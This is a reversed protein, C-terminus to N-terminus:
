IMWNSSAPSNLFGFPYRKLNAARQIGRRRAGDPVRDRRSGALRSGRVEVISPGRKLNGPERDRTGSAPVSGGQCWPEGVSTRDIRSARLFRSDNRERLVRPAFTRVVHTPPLTSSLKVNAFLWDQRKGVGRCMQGGRADEVRKAVGGARSFGRRLVLKRGQWVEALRGSGRERRSGKENREESKEAEELNMGWAVLSWELDFPQKPIREVRSVQTFISFTRPPHIGKALCLCPSIDKRNM